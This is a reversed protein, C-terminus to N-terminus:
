RELRVQSSAFPDIRLEVSRGDVDVKVRRSEVSQIRVRRGAVVFYDGESYVRDNIVAARRAPGIMTSRLTMQRAVGELEVQAFREQEAEGPEAFATPEEGGPETPQQAVASAVPPRRRPVGFAGAKVESPSASQFLPDSSRALELEQWHLMKKTTSVPMSEASKPSDPIPESSQDAVAFDDSGAIANWIPPIWFYMGVATLVILVGAKPPSAKMERLFRDYAAM